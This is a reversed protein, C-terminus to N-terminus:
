NYDATKEGFHQLKQHEGHPILRVQFLFQSSYSKLSIACTTHYCSVGFSNWYFIANCSLNLAPKSIPGPKPLHVLHNQRFNLKLSSNEMDFVLNQAFFRLFLTHITIESVFNQNKKWFFEIIKTFNDM